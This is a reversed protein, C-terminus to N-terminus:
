ACTPYVAVILRVQLDSSDNMWRTLTEIGRATVASTTGCLGRSARVLEDYPPEHGYIHTANLIRPEPWVYPPDPHLSPLRPFHFPMEREEGTGPNIIISTMICEGMTFLDIHRRTFPSGKRGGCPWLNRGVR